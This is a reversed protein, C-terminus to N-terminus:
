FLAALCAFLATRLPRLRTFAFSCVIGAALM